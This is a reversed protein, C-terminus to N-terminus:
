IKFVFRTLNGTRYYFGWYYSIIGLYTLQTELNNICILIDQRMQFLEKLFRKMLHCSLVASSNLIIFFFKIYPFGATEDKLWLCGPMYNSKEQFNLTQFDKQLSFFCLFIKSSPSIIIFEYFSWHNREM